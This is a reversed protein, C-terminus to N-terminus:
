DLSGGKRVRGSGDCIDCTERMRVGDWSGEGRCKGCTTWPSAARMRIVLVAILVAFIAVAAVLLRGM